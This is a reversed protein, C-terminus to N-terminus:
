ESTPHLESQTKVEAIAPGLSYVQLQFPLSKGASIQEASVWKRIGVISGAQDYATLLIWVEGQSAQDDALTVTGQVAAAKRDPAYNIKSISLNLPNQNNEAPLSTLLQGFVPGYDGEPLSFQVSLPLSEGGGLIDLPTIAIKSALIDGEPSHLNVLASINELPTSGPNVAQVFCWYERSSTPYCDAPSLEVPIPTPTPIGAASGNEGSPITIEDGISLQTSDIGPNAALLSDLSVDYRLAIGFLTDGEQISHYLPTPSPLRTEATSTIVPSLSPSPTRTSLPYPSVRVPQPSTESATVQPQDQCGALALLILISYFTPILFKKM